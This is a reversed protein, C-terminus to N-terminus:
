PSGRGMLDKVGRPWALWSHSNQFFSLKWGRFIPKRWIPAVGPVRPGSSVWSRSTWVYKKKYWWFHNTSPGQSPFVDLLPRSWHKPSYEPTNKPTKRIPWFRISGCLKASGNKFTPLDGEPESSDMWVSDWPKLTSSKPQVQRKYRPPRSTLIKFIEFGGFDSQAVFNQRATILTCSREKQSLATWGYVIGLNSHWQGWNFKGKRGRLRWLWLESIRLDTLIFKRGWNERPGRVCKSGRRKAWLQGDM